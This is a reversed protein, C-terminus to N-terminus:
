TAAGGSSVEVSSGRGSTRVGDPERACVKKQLTSVAAAVILMVPLAVWATRCVVAAGAIAAVTATTGGSASSAATCPTEMSNLVCACARPMWKMAAAIVASIAAPANQSDNM